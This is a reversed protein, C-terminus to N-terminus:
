DIDIAELAVPLKQISMEEYKSLGRVFADHYGKQWLEGLIEQAEEESGYVGVTYRWIGDKGEFYKVDKLGRFYQASVEQPESSALIQVTFGANREFPLIEDAVVSQAIAMEAAIDTMESESPISPEAKAMQVQPSPETDFLPEPKIDLNIAVRYIDEKGLGGPRTSSFYGEEGTPDLILGFDDMSSNLPYGMNTIAIGRLDDVQVKYIDLGGLGEHGNSSFYLQDDQHIFPYVEDAATNVVPGMNVPRGWKGDRMDCRYIDMGGYGNPKDSTFYLIKGDSTLTPHAVSFSSNNVSLSQPKSWEGDRNKTMSYLELRTSAEAGHGQEVVNTFIAVTQEANFAVPGAAYKGGLSKLFKEPPGPDGDTDFHSFRFDLNTNTKRDLLYENSHDRSSLFVFGDGFFSPSVDSATSNMPLEQVDYRERLLFFDVFHNLSNIRKRAIEDDRHNQYYARYHSRAAVYEEAGLLAEAYNFHDQDTFNTGTNEAFQYHYFASDINGLALYIEGLGKHAEGNRPFESIVRRYSKIAHTVDNAQYFDLAVKNLKRTKRNSVDQSSTVLCSTVMLIFLITLRVAPM